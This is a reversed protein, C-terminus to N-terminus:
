QLQPLPCRIGSIPRSSLGTSPTKLAQYFKNSTSVCGVSAGAAEVPYKVTDSKIIHGVASPM